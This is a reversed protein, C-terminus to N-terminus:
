GQTEKSWCEACEMDPEPCTERGPGDSFFEGPCHPSVISAPECEPLAKKLRQFWTETPHADAKDEKGGIDQAKRKGRSCYGDVPPRSSAGQLDCVGYDGDIPLYYECAGCHVVIEAHGALDAAGMTLEQLEAGCAAYGALDVWNDAKPQGSAIRAIKLLAMMAAVDHPSIPHRLYDEWLRAIRSFNDEPTGYAERDGCVCRLAEDLTEKRTMM